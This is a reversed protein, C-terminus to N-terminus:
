SVVFGFGEVGFFEFRFGGVVFDGFDRALIVVDELFPFAFGEFFEFVKMEGIFVGEERELGGFIV